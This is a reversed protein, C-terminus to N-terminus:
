VLVRLPRDVKIEQDQTSRGPEPTMDDRSRRKAEKDRSKRSEGDDQAKAQDTSMSQGDDQGQRPDQTIEPADYFEDVKRGSKPKKSKRKPESFDDLTAETLAEPENLEPLGSTPAAYTLDKVDKSARKSKKGKRKPEEFDDMTAEAPGAEGLRSEAAERDAYDDDLSAGKSSDTKSKNSGSYRAAMAGFAVGALGAGAVSAVGNRMGTKADGAKNKLKSSKASDPEEDEGTCDREPTRQDSSTRTEPADDFYSDPEAVVRDSDMALPGSENRTQGEASVADGTKKSKRRKQKKSLKSEAFNAEDKPDKDIEGEVFGRQPPAGETGPSDLVFRDLDPAARRSSQRATPTDEESGPPSDRRRYSPDDIVISPDFGTDQLGAALTAAFEVDDGFEGPVHGTRTATDTAPLEPSESQGNSSMYESARPISPDAGRQGDNSEEESPDAHEERVGTGTLEVSTEKTSTSDDKSTDTPLLLPSAPVPTPSILNLRPVSWPLSMLTPDFGDRTATFNYAPPYPPGASGDRPGVEIIEPVEYSLVDHDFVPISPQTDTSKERLEPPAFFDAQSVHATNYKDMISATGASEDAMVKSTSKGALDAHRDHDYPAEKASDREDQRVDYLAEYSPQHGDIPRNQEGDESRSSRSKAAAAGVAAGVIGAVAPAVWAGSSTDAFTDSQKISESTSAEKDRLRRREARSSERAKALAAQEESERRKARDRRSEAAEDPADRGQKRTDEPLDFRVGTSEGQTTARRRPEKSSTVGTGNSLSSKRVRSVNFGEPDVRRSGQLAQTREDFSQDVWYAQPSEVVAGQQNSPFPQIPPQSSGTYVQPSVPVVPQPQQLPVPAPRTTYPPQSQSSSISDQRRFGHNNPDSTLVPYVQQLSPLSSASSAAVDDRHDARHALAAGVAAGALGAAAPGIFSDTHSASESPYVTDKPKKKSRKSGWRWSWKDTASSADSLLSEQSKRRGSRSLDYFSGFALDSHIVSEDDTASEWGEEESVSNSLRARRSHELADPDGHRSKPVEKVAVVDARRRGLKDKSSQNAALAAVAAAGLGLMAAENSRQDKRTRDEVRSRKDGFALAADSSSSSADGFNFFGKDKKSRKRPSKRRRESGFGGLVGTESSRRSGSTRERSDRRERRVFEGRPSTSRERSRHRKKRVLEARPSTSRSRRRRSHSAASSAITAGAVAALIGGDRHRSRSRSRRRHKDEYYTTSNSTGGFFGPKVEKKYVRGDRTVGTEIRERSRSRRREQSHARKSISIESRRRSSSRSRRRTTGRSTYSKGDVSGHLSTTSTRGSRTSYGEGFGNQNWLSKGVKALGYGALGAGLWSTKNHRRKASSSDSSYRRERDIRGGKRYHHVRPADRPSSDPAFCYRCVGIYETYEEFKAVGERDKWFDTLKGMPGRHRHQRGVDTSYSGHGGSHHGMEHAALAAAGLAGAAYLGTNSHSSPMEPRDPRDFGTPPAGPSMAESPPRSPANNSTASYYTSSQDSQGPRNNQGHQSAMYGAATVAAAAGLTPLVPASVSHQDGSSSTRGPKGPKSPKGPRSPLPTSAFEASASEDFFSAAAGVGGMASPEIPPAAEASAPQLHPEAGVILEPTDPRVGPQNQVSSGMDGYYDAALGPGGEIVSLPPRYPAASQAPFQGPFQDPVHASVPAAPSPPGPLGADFQGPFQTFGQSGVQAEFDGARTSDDAIARSSSNDGTKEYNSSRRRRKSEDKSSTITRDHSYDDPDTAARSPRSVGDRDHTSRRERSRSRDRRDRRDSDRRDSDRRSSDSKKSRSEGSKHDTASSSSHPKRSSSSSVVSESPRTIKSWMAAVPILLPKEADILDLWALGVM